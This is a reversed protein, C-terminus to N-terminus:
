YDEDIEDGSEFKGYGHWYNFDSMASYILAGARSDPTFRLSDSHHKNLMAAREEAEEFSNCYSELSAKTDSDCITMYVGYREKEPHEAEYKAIDAGLVVGCYFLEEPTLRGSEIAANIDASTMRKSVHLGALNRGKEAFFENAYLM